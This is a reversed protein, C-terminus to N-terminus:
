ALEGVNSYVNEIFEYNPNSFSTPKAAPTAVPVAPTRTDFGTLADPREGTLPPRHAQLDPRAYPDDVTSQRATNLLRVRTSNRYIDRVDPLIMNSSVKSRISGSAESGFSEGYHPNEVLTASAGLLGGGLLPNPEVTGYGPNPVTFCVILVDLM